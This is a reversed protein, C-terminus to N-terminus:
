EKGAPTDHDAEEEECADGGTYIGTPESCQARALDQLEGCQPYKPYASVGHGRPSQHIGTDGM